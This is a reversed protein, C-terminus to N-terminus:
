AATIWTATLVDGNISGGANLWCGFASLSFGRGYVSTAPITGPPAFGNPWEGFFNGSEEALELGRVQLTVVRGTKTILAGAIKDGRTVADAHLPLSQTSSSVKTAITTNVTNIQSSVWTEDAKLGLASDVATKDAKQIDITTSLNNLAAQMEEATALFIDAM